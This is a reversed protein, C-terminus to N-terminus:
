VFEKLKTKLSNVSTCGEKYFKLMKQLGDVTRLYAKIKESFKSEEFTAVTKGDRLVNWHENKGSGKRKIEIAPFGIDDEEHYLDYEYRNQIPKFAEKPVEDSYPKSTMNNRM